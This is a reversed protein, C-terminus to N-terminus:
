SSLDQEYHQFQFNKPNKTDNEPLYEEEFQKLMKAMELGSLMWQQFAIPNQTLRVAGGFSKARKNEQKHAQDFPTTSLNNTTRSFVWHSCNKFEDKLM